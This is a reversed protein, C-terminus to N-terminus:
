ATAPLPQARAEDLYRAHASKTREAAIRGADDLVRTCFRELAVERLKRFVRWDKESITIM